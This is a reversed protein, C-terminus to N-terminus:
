RSVGIPPKAPYVLPATSTGYHNRLRFAKSPIIKRQKDRKTPNTCLGMNPTNWFHIQYANPNLKVLSQIEPARHSLLLVQANFDGGKDAYFFDRTQETQQPFLSYVAKHIGYADRVGLAKCDLRSLQLVSAIM